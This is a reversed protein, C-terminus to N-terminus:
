GTITIGSYVNRICIGWKYSLWVFFSYKIVYFMLINTLIKKSPLFKKITNTFLINSKILKSVDM